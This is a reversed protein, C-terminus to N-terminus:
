ANNLCILEMDAGVLYNNASGSCDKFTNDLAGGTLIGKHVVSPTLQLNDVVIEELKSLVASGVAGGLYDTGNVICNKISINKIETYQTHGCVTGVRYKGTINCDEFVINFIKVPRLPLGDCRSFLGIDDRKPISIELDKIKYGNGDLSGAFGRQTGDKKNFMTIPLFRNQGSSFTIGNQYEIDQSLAYSDALSYYIDQLDQITNVLMYSDTPSEPKIKYYYNNSNHYKHAKKGKEPNYHIVVKGLNKNTDIQAGDYYGNKEFIMRGTGDGEIGAKLELTGSLTIYASETLTINNQSM